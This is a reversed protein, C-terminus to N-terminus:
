PVTIVVKGVQANSELYRYADAVQVFPFTKAIKPRFRGDELRDYVYKRATERKEPVSTIEILPITAFISKSGVFLLGINDISAYIPCKGLFM